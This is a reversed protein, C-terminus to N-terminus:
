AKLESLARDVELELAALDSNNEIVVDASEVKKDIPWQAAQRQRVEVESWGNRKLLRKEVLEPSSTVVLVADFGTLNKEFLLPVDYFAMRFGQQHFSSRRKRVEEQVLPHIIGELDALASADGFVRRGLERRDIEGSPGQLDSGFRHLVKTWAETQPALVQHAIQDADIVPWGKRRLMEAVTSKGTGLGGTLGIWKM